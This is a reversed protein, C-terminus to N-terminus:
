FTLLNKRLTEGCGGAMFDMERIFERTIVQREARGKGAGGELAATQQPSFTQHKTKLGHLRRLTSNVEAIGWPPVPVTYKPKGESLRMKRFPTMGSRTTAYLSVGRALPAEDHDQRFPLTWRVRDAHIRLDPISGGLGTYDALANYEDMAILVPMDIVLSLEYRMLLFADTALKEYRAGMEVLEGLTECRRLVEVASEDLPYHRRDRPVRNARLLLRDLDKRHAALFNRLVQQTLEPTDYLAGTIERNGVESWVKLENGPLPSPVVSTYIEKVRKAFVGPVQPPPKKGELRLMQRVNPMFLVLWGHARAWEVAQFLAVSKGSGAAGELLISRHQGGSRTRGSKGKAVDWVGLGSCHAIEYLMRITCPRSMLSTTRSWNFEWEVAPPLGEPVGRRVTELNRTFNKERDRKHVEGATGVTYWEWYQAGNLVSRSGKGHTGDWLMERRKGWHIRQAEAVAERKPGELPLPARRAEEVWADVQKAVATSSNRWEVLWEEMAKVATWGEKKAKDRAKAKAGAKAEAKADIMKKGRAEVEAAVIVEEEVKKLGWKKKTRGVGPVAWKVGEVGRAGVREVGGDGAAPRGRRAVGGRGEEAGGEGEGVESPRVSEWEVGAWKQKVERRPSGPKSARTSSACRVGSMLPGRRVGWIVADYRVGSIWRWM